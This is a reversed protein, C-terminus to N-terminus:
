DINDNHLYCNTKVNDNSTIVFRQGASIIQKPPLGIRNRNKTGLKNRLQWRSNAELHAYHLISDVGKCTMDSNYKVKYKINVTVVNEFVIKKKFAM